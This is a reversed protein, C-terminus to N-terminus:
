GGSLCGRGSQGLHASGDTYIIQDGREMASKLPDVNVRIKCYTEVPPSVVVVDSLSAQLQPLKVPVIGLYSEAEAVTSFGKFLAGSYGTVQASCEEWSTFIGSERGVLVAYFNKKVMELVLFYFVERLGCSVINDLHLINARYRTNELHRLKFEIGFM